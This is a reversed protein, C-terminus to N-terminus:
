RGPRDSRGRAYPNPWGRRLPTAPPPAAPLAQVAPAAPATPAAESARRMPRVRTVLSASGDSVISLIVEDGPRLSRLSAAAEAGTREARQRGSADVFTLTGRAADRSLITAQVFSTATEPGAAASTRPPGFVLVPAIMMMIIANRTLKM